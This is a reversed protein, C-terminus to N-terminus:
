GPGPYYLGVTHTAEAFILWREVLLGALASAAGLAGLAVALGGGVIIALCFLLAPLAFGFLLAIKRLKTAHVRGVRFAMERLLYNTETHPSELPRVKGIFGLGTASERTSAAPAGDVSDWYARKFM